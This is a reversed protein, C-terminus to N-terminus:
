PERDKFIGVVFGLGWSLHILPFLFPLVTLTRLGHIKAARVSFVAVAAAYLGFLALLPIWQRTALLVVAAALTLVPVLHVPKAADFHKKIVNVRLIGYRYLQRCLLRFTKRPYYFSVIKPNYYICHGAKRIRWNMEADESIFREEDFLGVEDFLDRRYAAYVVTDVQQEQTSFRYPASALGFPSGMAIGITKQIFTEGVNVQTGGTVPAGTRRMTEVNLRVFDQQIRTHAGLIIVVEGRANRIGANLGAPTRRNPNEVIRVNPHVAALREVVERAGDLSGGDAVVIDILSQPYDQGFISKICREIAEAENFMPIVISVLPQKESTANL